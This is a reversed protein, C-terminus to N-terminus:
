EAGGSELSLEQELTAAIRYLLTESYRKGMLQLGIPMNNASKKCPLTLSPLGSLNALVSFVDERYSELASTPIEDFPRAVSPTMPLVIADYRALLSDLQASLVEAAAKARLYLHERGERCLALNGLMIRRKVESGFGESRSREILEDASAAGKARHGYRVGDFRSLESAAEASSIVYYAALADGLDGLADALSLTDIEAGLLGLTKAAESIASVVCDDALGTCDLLLLRTGGVGGDLAAQLGGREWLARLPHPRSTADRKDEFAMNALVLANSRVCPTIPCIQELSPAFSILGYRSVASYTPKISVLGCCAAPQRASGGTDSALSFTAMGAAVAAASGGSSGGATRCLSLPNNTRGFYSTRTYSGMAFEDMNTKGLMVAGGDELAEIVSASYPPIYNELMKSACTTRIGRTSINDKAAFPVGTLARARGERRACDAARAAALAREASVTIFANIEGDKAAINELAERCLEEASVEKAELAALCAFLDLKM